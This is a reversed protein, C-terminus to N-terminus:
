RVDGDVCHVTFNMGELAMNNAEFSTESRDIANWEAVTGLFYVDRLSTCRNFASAAIRTVGAPITIETLATCRNFAGTGIESLRDPLDISTLSTCGSFTFHPLRTVNEPINIEALLNCDWFAYESLYILEEPLTVKRLASCNWFVRDGISTYSSPIVVSVVSTNSQMAWGDFGKVPLGNYESPFVIDTDTCTGIGGVLYHDEKKIM